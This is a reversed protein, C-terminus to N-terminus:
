KAAAIAAQKKAKKKAKSRDGKKRNVKDGKKTKVEDGHGTNLLTVTYTRMPEKRLHYAKSKNFKNKRFKNIFQPYLVRIDEIMPNYMPFMFEVKVGDIVCLLKFNTNYQKKRVAICVGRVVNARALTVSNKYTVELADGARFPVRQQAKGMFERSLEHMIHGARRRPAKHKVWTHSKGGLDEKTLQSYVALDEVTPLSPESTVDVLMTDDTGARAAYATLDDLSPENVNAAPAAESRPAPPPPPPPPAAIGALARTSGTLM